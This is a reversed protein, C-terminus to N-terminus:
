ENGTSEARGILEVHFDFIAHAHEGFSVGKIGNILHVTAGPRLNAIKPTVEHPDHIAVHSALPLIGLVSADISRTIVISFSVSEVIPVPPPTIIDAM